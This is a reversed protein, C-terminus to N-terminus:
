CSDELFRLLPDPLIALMEALKVVRMEATKEAKTEVKTEVM